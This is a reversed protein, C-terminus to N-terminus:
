LVASRGIQEGQRILVSRFECHEPRPGSHAEIKQTKVALAMISREAESRNGGIEGSLRVNEAHAAMYCVHWDRENSWAGIVEPRGQHVSMMLGARNTRAVHSM